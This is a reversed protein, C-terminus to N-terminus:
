FVEDVEGNALEQGNASEFEACIASAIPRSYQQAITNGAEPSLIGTLKPVIGSYVQGGKSKRKELTLAVEVRFYPVPLKMLWRRIDGASGPQVRVLLPLTDGPQLICFIRGEKARKGIGNKGSGMQTYPLKRWEYFGDDRRAAEIVQTDLDGYDDGIKKAIKLDNTVLLPPKGEAPDTSPWLSGHEQQYVLIGGLADQNVTGAVTDITWQTGGGSPTPVHTLDGLRIESMEGLNVALAAAADSNSALPVYKSAAESNNAIILGNDSKAKAM